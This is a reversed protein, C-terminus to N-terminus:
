SNTLFFYFPFFKKKKKREIIDNVNIQKKKFYSYFNYKIKVKM